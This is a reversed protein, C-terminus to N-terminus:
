RLTSLATPPRPVLRQMWGPLLRRRLARRRLVLVLYWRQWARRVGAHTSVTTGAKSTRPSGRRLPLM